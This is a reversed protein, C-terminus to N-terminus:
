RGKAIYATLAAALIATASSIGTWVNKGKHADFVSKQLSVVQKKMDDVMENKAKFAKKIAELEEAFSQVEEEHKKKKEGRPTVEVSEKSLHAATSKLLEFAQKSNVCSSEFKARLDDREQKIANLSRRIVNQETVLVDLSSELEKNTEDVKEKESRIKILEAGANEIKEKLGAVELELNGVKNKEGSFEKMIIDNKLKLEAVHSELDEVKNKEEDYGKKINDREIEVEEAANKYSQVQALLQELKGEMEVVQSQLNEVKNKEEDYGMKITNRELEVEGVVNSYSQVQALLLEIKEEMEVVQSQLSEVKNKEEDYEKIINDRELEVEGVAKWYDNVQSLLGNNKEEFEGCSLKLNDVVGMLRSVEGQLEVIENECSVKVKEIEDRARNAEDVERQRNELERQVMDLTRYVNDREETLSEISKEMEKKEAVLKSNEVMMENEKEVALGIYGEMERVKACMVAEQKKLNELLDNVRQLEIELNLIKTGQSSNVNQAEDKEKVVMDIKEKLEDIVKVSEYSKKVALDRDKELEQVRREKEAKEDFLNQADLQLREVNSKENELLLAFNDMKEKQAAVEYNIENKEEIVKDFLFGLETIQTKAFVVFVSNEVELALNKDSIEMAAYNSHLLAQIRNRHNTTEQLLVSNLNKLNQIQVSPDDITTPQPTLTKHDLSKKSQSKTEKKKAM